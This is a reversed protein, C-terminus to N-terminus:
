LPPVLGPAAGHSSRHVILRELAAFDWDIGLGPANSPIARGDVIRIPATTVLDLQPIYELWRSNPVACTLGLHLEMLFHPAVPVNFAECLHAVKLWPTIGGIRGVDVQVISCAGAELYDKFQSLSYLSEGIAIPIATSRALRRHAGVDDAHIPEEFWAIDLSEFHRARRVAEDLTLGQNADTMIEFAPGVADRVLALRRMDEAVHPRGVKIKTGGFGAEKAKVAEAVLAAEDMHLWGGETSYLDIAEKAGGALRHLPLGAKRARLDWLATDIAALAISTLAGVTTAHVRFFLARWIAEIAEAERGILLPALHDDILRCVSSGGTGITYSYGTGTAGDADTIRVIPTEQTEFSQIADTRKVKPKLDAQLVDVSTIKAM